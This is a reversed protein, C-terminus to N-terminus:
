RGARHPFPVASFLLQASLLLRCCSCPLVIARRPYFSARYYSSSIRYRIPLHVAKIIHPFPSDSSWEGVKQPFIGCWNWLKWLTSNQCSFCNYSIILWNSLEKIKQCASQSILFHVRWHATVCALCNVFFTIFM